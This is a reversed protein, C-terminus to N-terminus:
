NYIIKLVGKDGDYVMVIKKKSNVQLKLLKSMLIIAWIKITDRIKIM